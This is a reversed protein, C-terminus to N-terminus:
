EAGDFDDTDGEVKFKKPWTKIKGLTKDYKSTKGPADEGGKSEAREDIDAIDHEVGHAEPGFDYKLGGDVVFKKPWDEEPIGHREKGFEARTTEKEAYEMDEIETHEELMPLKGEKKERKM